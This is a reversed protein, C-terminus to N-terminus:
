SNREAEITALRAAKAKSLRFQPRGWKQEHEGFWGAAFHEADGHNGLKFKIVVRGRCLLSLTNDGNYRRTLASPKRNPM